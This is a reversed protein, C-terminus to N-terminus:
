SKGLFRSVDYYVPKTFHRIIFAPAPQSDPKIRKNSADQLRPNGAHQALVKQLYSEPTGRLSCEVDLM